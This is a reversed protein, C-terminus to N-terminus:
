DQQLNRILNILHVRNKVGMKKYIRHTHDKVTQLSIFLTESIQQNTLGDCIKEIIDCERNTINYIRVADFLDPQIKGRALGPVRLKQLVYGLYLLPILNSTFFVISYTMGWFVSQESFYFLVIGTLRVLLIILTFRVIANRFGPDTINRLHAYLYFFAVLLTLVELCVLVLQIMFSIGAQRGEGFNSINLVLVGYALFVLIFLGFYSLTFIRHPTDGAIEMFMKIFMYWGAVLFPVGLFPLFNLINHMLHIPSAWAILQSRVLLTGLIGYIGFVLLLILYYLYSQIFPLEYTKYFRHALLISATGGGLSVVFLSILLLDNLM